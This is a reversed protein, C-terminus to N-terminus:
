FKWLRDVFYKINEQICETTSILWQVFKLWWVESFYKGLCFLSQVYTPFWTESLSCAGILHDFTTNQSKFLKEGVLDWM